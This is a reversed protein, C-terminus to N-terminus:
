LWDVLLIGVGITNQSWNYDILTEGYGTTIKVYGKLRGQIPFSWTDTSSFNGANYRALVSFEQRGWLYIATVDGYGEYRIIDPNDDDDASDQIRIWPRVLLNFNGREFGFQGYVRNWSRSLPNARGNSQHLFGVSAFRGDLGLLNYHTPFLVFLEPMYNTERFPASHEHNYVQWQSQQTYAVWFDANSGLINQWAKFKFSLQFEAENDQLPASFPQPHSPSQPSDNANDTHVVPLLFLPQHPRLVWPGQKTEPDLEWRVSLPTPPTAGPAVVPPTPLGLQQLQEEPKVTPKAEGRGAARDYCQLRERDNKIAACGTGDAPEAALGARGIAVLCFVFVLRVLRPWASPRASITIM